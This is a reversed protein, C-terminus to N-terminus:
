QQGWDVLDFAREVDVGSEKAAAMAQVLATVTRARGGSDYAQLPRMVDLTVPSELKASCEHAVLKALPQLTWQGLHRQAERVVPGTAAPNQLAPLVGFVSEIANRAEKIAQSSELRQLNPTLDTAQKFLDPYAGAATAQAVGEVVLVSGRRGKFGERLATLDDVQAEPMPVIQSGIPATQYVDSLASEVANALGASLAARRLPPTGVYPTTTQAGTVVHIVEPALATVTYGGGTDAVSARYAVPRGNRTSVDWEHCAVLGDERILALFEGRLALSRAVLALMPPTLLDTGNVDALSLGGEWLSVCSQAASTLEGIGERGTILAARAAMLSATYGTASARNEVPKRKFPWIM